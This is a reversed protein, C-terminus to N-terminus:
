RWNFRHAGLPLESLKRTASRGDLIASNVLWPGISRGQGPM